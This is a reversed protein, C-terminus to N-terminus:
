GMDDDMPSESDSPTQDFFEDVSGELEQKIYELESRFSEYDLDFEHNLIDSTNDKHKLISLMLHESHVEENKYVKAELFTVKLVKEAHKNLPISDLNYKEEAIVNSTELQLVREKIGDKDIQLSDLVKSTLSEKEDLISLLFHETGISSKGQKLAQERSQKIIKKVEPSFKRDM